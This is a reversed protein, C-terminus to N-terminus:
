VQSTLFQHFEAFLHEAMLLYTVLGGVYEDELHPRLSGAPHQRQRDAEYRKKGEKQKELLKRQAHHRGRLVKALVDKRLASLTERRHGQRRHRGSDGGQVPNRSCNRSSPASSAAAASRRTRTCSAPSPMWRDSNVLIDMKVLKSAVYDCPRLGDATARTISKLRDNFDILIENLPLTVHLHRTATSRRPGAASAASKWSSALIDGISGSPIHALSSRRPESITDITSPDPM